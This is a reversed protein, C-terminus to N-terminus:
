KSPFKKELKDLINKYVSREELSNQWKVINNYKSVDFKGFKIAGVLWPWISIDAITYEDGIVYKKGELQTDLVKLLREGEKTYREIAYPIKEKAFSNFHNAQGLMPGFGAVQWILWKLTEYKGFDDQPILKKEKEAFYMMIAATEFLVLEKDGETVVVAPVKNNPSIKLFEPKFQEGNFINVQNVTDPKIGLEEFLIDIKWTNPTFSTYLDIKRSM